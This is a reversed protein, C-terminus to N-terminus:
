GRGMRRDLEFLVEDTLRKAKAEAPLSSAVVGAARRCRPDKDFDEGLAMVANLFSLLERRETLGHNRAKGIIRDM